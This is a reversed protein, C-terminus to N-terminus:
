RFIFKILNKNNDKYHLTYLTYRIVKKIDKGLDRAIITREVRASYLQLILNREIQPTSQGNRWNSYNTWEMIASEYLLIKTSFHVKFLRKILKNFTQLMLLRTYASALIHRLKQM